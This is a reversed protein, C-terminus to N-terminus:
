HFWLSVQHLMVGLRSPHFLLVLLFGAVAGWLHASHNIVSGRRRTGVLSFLIYFLSLTWGPVSGLTWSPKLVTMGVVLASVAGSSGLTSYDPERRWRLISPLDSVVMGVVWILLFQLHGWAIPWSGAGMRMATKIVLDHEFGFGIFVFTLANVILHIWGDHVFASTFIQHYKGKVFQAPWLAWRERLSKKLLGAISMGLMVLLLISAIPSQQPNPLM